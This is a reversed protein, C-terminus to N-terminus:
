PWSSTGNRKACGLEERTSPIVAGFIGPAFLTSNSCHGLLKFSRAAARAAATSYISRSGSIVARHRTRAEQCRTAGDRGKRRQEDKRMARIKRMAESDIAKMLSGTGADASSAISAKRSFGNGSGESVAYNRLTFGGDPHGM